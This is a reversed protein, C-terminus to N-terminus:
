FLRPLLNKSGSKFFKIVITELTAADIVNYLFM